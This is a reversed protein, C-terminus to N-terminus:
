RPTMLSLNAKNNEAGCLINLILRREENEKAPAQKPQEPASLFWWFPHSFIM